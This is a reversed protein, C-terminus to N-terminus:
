RDRGALQERLLQNDQALMRGRTALKGRQLAAKVVAILEGALNPSKEVYGYAGLELAERRVEDSGFATMLIVEAEPQTEKVKRLVGLGDHGTRMRLDTIVVDFEGATLAREVGGPESAMEVAHGAKILRAELMTRMSQEDDVVMLRAM